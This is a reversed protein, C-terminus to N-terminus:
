RLLTTEPQTGAPCPPTVGATTSAGSVISPAGGPSPIQGWPTYFTLSPAPANPPTYVTLQPTPAVAPNYFAFPPTPMVVPPATAPLTGVRSLAGVTVPSTTPVCRASFDISQPPAAEPVTAPADLNTTSPSQASESPTSSQATAQVPLAFVATAMVILAATKNLM